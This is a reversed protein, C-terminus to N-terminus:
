YSPLWHVRQEDHMHLDPKEAALGLMVQASDQVAYIPEGGLNTRAAALDKQDLVAAVRTIAV